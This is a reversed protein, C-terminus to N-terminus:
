LARLGKTRKTEELREKREPCGSECDDQEKGDRSFILCVEGQQQQERSKLANGEIYKHSPSDNGEPIWDM